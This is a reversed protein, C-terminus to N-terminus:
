SKGNSERYRIANCGICSLVLNDVHDSGGQSHPQVHDVTACEAGRLMAHLYYKEENSGYREINESDSIDIHYFYVSPVLECGCYHCNWGDRKAVKEQLEHSRYTRKRGM